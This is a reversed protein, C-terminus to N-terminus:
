LRNQGLSWLPVKQITVGTARRAWLYFPLIILVDVFQCAYRRAFISTRRVIKHTGWEDMGIHFLVQVGRRFVRNCM